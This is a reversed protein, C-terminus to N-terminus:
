KDATVSAEQAVKITNDSGKGKGSSSPESWTKIELKSKIEDIASESAFVSISANKWNQLRKSFTEFDKVTASLIEDRWNQRLGKTSGGLFRLFALWGAQSPPLAATDIGGICGIIATEVMQDTIIKKELEASMFNGAEQFVNATNYLQPDRYSVMLMTGDLPSLQATVGYAGNKARVQDWLYGTKLYQNAVCNGGSIHESEDFLRGGRGVYSVRSSIPIWENEITAIQSREKAAEKMWPHDVEHFKEVNSVNILTRTLATETGTPEKRLSTVFKEVVKDIKTLTENDATLNIITESSYMDSFSKMANKIRNELGEWDDNAQELIVHLHELQRIGTLKERLFSQTNYRSHMRKMALVHGSSSMAAKFSSIRRTLLEIGKEKTVPLSNQALEKILYLLHDVNAAVCKGRFSLISRMKKNDNSRYDTQGANFVLVPLLELGISIGGTHMGIMTNLEHRTHSQSDNEHLMSLILPLLQTDNYRISSIDFGVDLYVMGSSSQVVHKTLLASSGYANKTVDIDYEVGAPAMDSLTLKPISDIASQSDNTEQKLKFLRSKEKLATLEDPTLSAEVKKISDEEEKALEDAVAISPTLEMHVRHNNKVLYSNIIEAFYESKKENISEKLKAM